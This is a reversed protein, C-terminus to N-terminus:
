LETYKANKGRAVDEPYRQASLAMKAAFAQALDFDLKNSFALIFFLCDALEYQLSERFSEDTLLQEIEAESRFRFHELLESAETILGIALDKPPHFQDWDRAVIFQRVQEKLFSISTTQDSSIM